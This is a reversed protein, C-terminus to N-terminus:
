DRSAEDTPNKEGFIWQLYIPKLSLLIQSVLILRGLRTKQHKVTQVLWTPNAHVISHPPAIVLSLLLVLAEKHALHRAQM